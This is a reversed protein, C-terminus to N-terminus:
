WRWPVCGLIQVSWRDQVAKINLCLHSCPNIIFNSTSMRYSFISICIPHRSLPRGTIDNFIRVTSGEEEAWVSPGGQGGGGSGSFPLPHPATLTLSSLTLKSILPFPSSLIIQTQNHLPCMRQDLVPRHYKETNHLFWIFMTRWMCYIQHFIFVTLSYTYHYSKVHCM